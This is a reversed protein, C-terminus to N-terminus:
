SRWFRETIVSWGCPTLRFEADEIMGPNGCLYVLTEEKPLNWRDLFEEILLNVRGTPGTWGANREAWPRSISCVFTIVDAYRNSLRRFERDYVFEDRHSAGQMVFFRHNESGGAGSERDRIFERVMSVYPAIGTVTSVMVHNRVGARLTFRGKARPRMTLVDGVHQAYLIPTLTGGHEPRVYEIFLEILPEYPASAISYPREVGGAGITIYQGATFDFEIEPQLWLLFLDDTFDERRVIKAEPLGSDIASANHLKTNKPILVTDLRIPVERCAFAPM